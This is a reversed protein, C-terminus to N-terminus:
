GGRMNVPKLIYSRGKIKRPQKISHDCRLGCSGALGSPQENRRESRELQSPRLFYLVCKGGRPPFMWGPFRIDRGDLRCRTQISERMRRTCRCTWSMAPLSRIWRNAQRVDLLYNTWLPMRNCSRQRILGANVVWLRKEPETAQQRDAGDSQTKTTFLRRTRIGAHVKINAEEQDM